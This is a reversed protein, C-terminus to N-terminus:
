GNDKEFAIYAWTQWQYEQNIWNCSLSNSESLRQLEKLKAIKGIINVQNSGLQVATTSRKRLVGGKPSVLSLYFSFFILTWCSAFGHSLLIPSTHTEVATSCGSGRLNSLFHTSFNSIIKCCCVLKKNLQDKRWRWCAPTWRCSGRSRRFVRRSPLGPDDLDATSPRSQRSCWTWRWWRCRCSGWWLTEWCFLHTISGVFVAVPKM